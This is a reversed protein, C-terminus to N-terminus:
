VLRDVIMLLCPSNVVNKIYIYFSIYAPLHVSLFEFSTLDECLKGISKFSLSFKCGEM